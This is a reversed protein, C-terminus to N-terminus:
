SGMASFVVIVVGYVLAVLGGLLILAREWPELRDDIGERLTLTLPALDDVGFPTNIDSEQQRRLRLPAQPEVSPIPQNEPTQPRSLPRAFPIPSGGRPLTKQLPPTVPELEPMSQTEDAEDAEETFPTTSLSPAPGGHRLLPWTPLPLSVPPPVTAVPPVIAVTAVTAVAAVAAVAEMQRDWARQAAGEETPRGVLVLLDKIDQNECPGRLSREARYHAETAVFVPAVGQAEWFDYDPYGVHGYQFGSDTRRLGLSAPPEAPDAPDASAVPTMPIPRERAHLRMERWLISPWHGNDVRFGVGPLIEVVTGYNYAGRTTRGSMVSRGVVVDELRFETRSPEHEFLTVSGMTTVSPACVSPFLSAM